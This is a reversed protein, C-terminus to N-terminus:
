VDDIMFLCVKLLHNEEILERNEKKLENCTTVLAVDEKPRSFSQRQKELRDTTSKQEYLENQLTEKEVRLDRNM